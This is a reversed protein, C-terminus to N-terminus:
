SGYVVAQLETFTEANFVEFFDFECSSFEENSFFNILDISSINLESIRKMADSENFATKMIM